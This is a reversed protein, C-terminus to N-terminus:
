FNLYITKLAGPKSHLRFSDGLAIPAASAASLSFAVAARPAMAPARTGPSSRMLRGTRGIRLGSDGLLQRRLQEASMGYYDAVAPLNGGLAAVAAAGSLGPTVVTIAPFLKEAASPAAPLAALSLLGLAAALCLAVRRSVPM